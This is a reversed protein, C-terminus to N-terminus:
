FGKKYNNWISVAFPANISMLRYATFITLTTYDSLPTICLLVANEMTNLSLMMTKKEHLIKVEDQTTLSHIMAKVTFM